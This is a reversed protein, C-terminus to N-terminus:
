RGGLLLELDPLEKDRKVPAEPDAPVGRMDQRALHVAELAAAKILL